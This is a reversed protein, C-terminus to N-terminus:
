RMENIIGSFKHIKRTIEPATSTKNFRLFVPMDRHKLPNSQSKSQDRGM